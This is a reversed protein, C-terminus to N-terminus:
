VSLEVSFAMDVAGYVEDEAIGGGDDLVAEDVSPRRAVALLDHDRGM